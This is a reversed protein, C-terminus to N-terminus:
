PTNSLLSAVAAQAKPDYGASVHNAQPLELYTADPLLGSLERSLEVPLVRDQGAGIILIPADVRSLADAIDYRLLAEDFRVRLPLGRPTWARAVSAVSPATTELIVARVSTARSALDSCVFGGLSHGWLIVPRGGAQAEVWPVFADAVREVAAVSAVGSSDGYGPYDWLLAQGHPLIKAAYDIGRDIRDSANGFCSVILPGEDQGVFTIAIQEGGLPVRLHRLPVVGTEGRITLEARAEREVPLFVVSEDIYLGRALLVSLLLITILMVVGVTLLFARM